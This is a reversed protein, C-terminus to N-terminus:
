PELSFRYFRKSLGATSPDNIQITAGTGFIQDTLTTWNGTALDDRYELRYTKGLVSPFDIQFNGSNPVISSIRFVSNPNKPDLGALFKQLNTMGSGDADDTARSKDGAQGNTHGFHAQMWNNPIGDGDSDTTTVTKAPSFQSTNGNPDTATATIVYGAPVAAVLSASFNVTGAGNTAASTSGVFFQGENGGSPSAFFEIRFTTSAVSTLSGGIDTGSPNAVTSLVASSLAPAAQNNNSNTYVGIGLTTNSFISNQSVTNKNTTSDFTAVGEALNGAIINSAGITSGGITNSQAGNYLAVGQLANAKIASLVNLGITNGQVLNNNTGSVSFSIGYDTNGSIYNRAGASTGGIVNDHAGNFVDIGSSTNAIKVVGTVDLGIYNGQIVNSATGSDTLTMGQNGNGSIINGAGATTGGVVNSLAGNLINVGSYANALAATGSANTGIFNGRVLNGNTGPDSVFVGYGGNGSILNGTGPQVDGLHNASAGNTIYVGAFGNPVSATGSADTGIFNGQAINDSTGPDGFALGVTVNGSLINREAATTGGIINGTAKNYITVGAFGNGIATSGGPATGVQNGQVMNGSTGLDAIRLGEQANGSIVNDAVLNNGAGNVIYLGVFTNPVAGSGTAALGIYNSRVTNQNVGAGTLWVGASVNGSIINRAGLSTGGISNDHSSDTVILGGFGNPVAALGNASTGIYNGLVVNGTTTAGSIWIGYQDNGSIVNRDATATGGITNSNAGNSIYVGQYNPASATGSYDLGFRCARVTNNHADPYLFALGVWPFRQFSLGKVTCNGAFVHMGPVTAPVAGAEPLIQSGDIVILPSGAYGPQTTGDIITGDVVLPLLDGTLQITFVGNAYGSDSTPINFTITTGPNDVAYHMAARLGGVGSESTNTVVSSLAPVPPGYLYTMVARDGKSLAFGGMRPQFREFGSKAQLTDLNPPDVSFLNRPFHMVSEFDYPGQATGTPDIDFWHQNTAPDAINASLVSVFGDRDGRTHEHLLGFSHGMEHCIQARTLLSVEVTQPNSGFVRDFGTPDYKFLIYQAETTRPLFHVKAALEYERLANLYTQQQAASLAPDMVYPVTGGPWPVNTIPTITNVYLGAGVPWCAFFWIIIACLLWVGERSM